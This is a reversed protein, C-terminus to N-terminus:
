IFCYINWVSVIILPWLTLMMAPKRYKFTQEKNRMTLFHLVRGLVFVGALAHIAYASVTQQELLYLALLFFPVYSSFNGHASVLHIIENNQGAGLSVKNKGRAMITEISIWFYLLGLVGLYLSTVM